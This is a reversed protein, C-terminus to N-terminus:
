EHLLKQMETINKMILLIELANKNGTQNNFQRILKVNRIMKLLIAIMLNIELFLHKYKHNSIHYRIYHIFWHKM